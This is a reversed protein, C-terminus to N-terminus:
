KEKLEKLAKRFNKYFEKGSFKEKDFGEEVYERQSFDILAEKLSSEFKDDIEILRANVGNTYEPIGGSNTTIVKRGCVLAELGTLLASECCLSPVTVVDTAAYIENLQNHPIYGSFIVNKDAEAKLKAYYEEQEKGSPAGVIMLKSNPIKASVFARITELIGKIPTIRGVYTYLIEGEGIQFRERVTRRAELEKEKELPILDICNLVVNVKKAGKLNCVREKIFDSVAIIGDTNKLIDEINKKSLASFPDGHLYWIVKSKIRSFVFKLERNLSTVIVFDYKEKNILSIIRNMNKDPIYIKFFKAVINKLTFKGHKKNKYYHFKTNKYGYSLKKAEDDYISFLDIELKKENENELCLDDILAEVAGGKSPPNPLNAFTAFAIKM